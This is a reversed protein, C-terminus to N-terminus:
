GPPAGEGSAAAAPAAVLRHYAFTGRLGHVLYLATLALVVILFYSQGRYLGIGFGALYAAVACVAAARSRLWILAGCVALVGVAPWGLPPPAGYAAPDLSGAVTPLGVVFALIACAWTGNRGVDEASEADSIPHWFGFFNGM